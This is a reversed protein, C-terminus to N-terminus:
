TPEQSWSRRRRFGGRPPTVAAALIEVDSAPLFASGSGGGLGAPVRAPLAGRRSEAEVGLRVVLAVTIKMGDDDWNAAVHAEHGLKNSYASVYSNFMLVM